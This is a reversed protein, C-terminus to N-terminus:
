SLSCQAKRFIEVARDIEKYTSMGTSIFTHKKESAIAELLEEYVLMASAVKNYKCGFQKLFAQSKLDWASAYWDIGLTKCYDDITQYESEDFELGLKQDRQTEGWPSERKADLFEKTYVMDIDRKQFKVADCGARSAVEILKKCIDMDGNHNIGIEAVIFISM